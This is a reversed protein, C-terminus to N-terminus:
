SESGEEEIEGALDALDALAKMLKPFKAEDVEALRVPLKLTAFVQQVATAGFKKMAEQVRAKVVDRAITDDAAVEPEAEPAPTKPKKGKKAPKPAPEETEDDAEPAPTEPRGEGAEAADQAAFVAERQVDFQRMMDGAIALVLASLHVPMSPLQVSTFVPHQVTETIHADIDTPSMKGSRSQSFLPIPNKKM